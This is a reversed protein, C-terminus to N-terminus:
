RSPAGTSVVAREGPVPGAAKGAPTSAAASTEPPASAVTLPAGPAVKLVGDVVVRDGAHLGQNIFWEDGHWDGVTVPRPEAAGKANVTWVMHGKAGQVVARRPVLMAGPREAGHIRVKVFQGPRLQGQPNAFEARLLFTGTEPSFSPDLFSIRGRNPHVTADALIVEVEFEGREPWRVRKAAVEDRFKLLENESVSFNVWIPDLQAVYTLLNNAPSVYAGEQLKAYSSLGALPSVIRTYSLNIEATRVAGQAALVGAEGQRLQGTADDLDKKSMANRAALPKIREFTARANDLQAQQQALAGRAQQLVAEFPKRDLQFLPQGARVPGGEAYLRKDLYGDIRARIEVQRSSMTQGVWESAVPTDRPAITVATVELPPPAPAAEPQKACGALVSVAFVLAAIWCRHESAKM